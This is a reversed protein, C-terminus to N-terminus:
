RLRTHVTVVSESSGTALGRQGTTTCVYQLPHPQHLLPTKHIVPLKLGKPAVLTAGGTPMESEGDQALALDQIAAVQPLGQESRARVWELVAFM